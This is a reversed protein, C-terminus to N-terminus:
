SIERWEEFGFGDGDNASGGVAVRQRIMHDAAHEIETILALNVRYVRTSGRDVPEGGVFRQGVRGLRNIVSVDRHRARQNRRHELRGVPPQTKGM